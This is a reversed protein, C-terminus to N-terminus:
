GGDPRARAGGLSPGGDDRRRALEAHFAAGFDGWLKAVVATKGGRELSAIESVISAYDTHGFPTSM